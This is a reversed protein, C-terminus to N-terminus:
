SRAPTAARAAAKRAYKQPNADWKDRCPTDCFHYTKGEFNAQTMSKEADVTMGCVPDTAITMTM